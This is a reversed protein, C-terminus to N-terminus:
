NGKRPNRRNFDNGNGFTGPLVGNTAENVDSDSEYNSQPAVIIRIVDIFFLQTGSFDFTIPKNMVDDGTPTIDGGWPHDEGPDNFHIRVDLPDYYGKVPSTLVLVLIPALILFLKKPKM